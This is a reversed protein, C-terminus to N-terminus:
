RKELQMYELLSPYKAFLEGYRELEDFHFQSAINRAAETEAGPELLAKQREIFTNYLEKGSQYLAFDPAADVTWRLDPATIEPFAEAIENELAPLSFDAFLEETVPVRRVMKEINSAIEVGYQALGEDDEIGKDRVLAPLAEEGITFSYDLTVQWAFNAGGGAFRKYADGQPLVGSLELSGSVPRPKFPLLKTNTPLLRYWVWHVGGERIVAPAVGHSKSRLVGVAGHPLAFEVWGALFGAGGLLIIMILLVAFKKM